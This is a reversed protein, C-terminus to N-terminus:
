ARLLAKSASVVSLPCLRRSSVDSNCVATSAWKGSPAEWGPCASMSRCTFKQQPAHQTLPESQSECAPEVIIIADHTSFWFFVAEDVLTSLLVQWCKDRM